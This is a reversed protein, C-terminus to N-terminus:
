HRCHRRESGWSRRKYKSARVSIAPSKQLYETNNHSYRPLALHAVSV